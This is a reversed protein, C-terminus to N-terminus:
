ADEARDQPKVQNLESFEIYGDDDKDLERFQEPTGIFEVSSIENDGNTDMSRAWSPVKISTDINANLEFAFLQNRQSPDGRVLQMLFTSPFSEKGVVKRLLDSSAAIERTSLSQDGNSDLYGFMVDPVEAARGRVQVAWIPQKPAMGSQIEEFTLKGDDDADFDEFSYQDEFQDPIEAEDLAGDNNADLALFAERPFNVGTGIRDSVQIAFKLDDDAWVLRNQTSESLKNELEIQTWVVELNPSEGPKSPFSVRVIMDPDSKLINKAESSSVLENQDQDLVRIPDGSLSFPRNEKVESFVYGAMTWDVYDFLDTAVNGDRSIRRRNWAPDNNVDAPPDIVESIEVRSDGNRDARLISTEAADVETSDLDGSNDLDLIGLIASQKIRDRFYDTGQLRFPVRFGSERFVVGPIEELDARGNRNRDYQQIMGRRQGMNAAARGFTQPDSEIFDFFEDWSTGSSDDTDAKALVERFRKDFATALPVDGVRLDLDVILPGAETPCYVRFAPSELEPPGVAVEKEQPSEATSAVDDTDSESSSATTTKSPLAEDAMGGLKSVSEDTPSNSSDLQGNEVKQENEVKTPPEPETDKSRTPKSEKAPVNALEKTGSQSDCGAFVTILTLCAIFPIRHRM